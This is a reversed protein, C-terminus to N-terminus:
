RSVIPTEFSLNYIPDQLAYYYIYFVKLMVKAVNLFEEQEAWLPPCLLPEEKSRRLQYRHGLNVVGM